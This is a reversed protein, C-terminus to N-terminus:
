EGSIESMLPLVTKSKLDKAYEGNKFLKVTPISTIGYEELVGATKDVEVAVFTVDSLQESAKEFHPRFRKCPACWDAWFDVVVTENAFILNKLQGLSVAATVDSM